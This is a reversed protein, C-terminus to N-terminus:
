SPTFRLPVTNMAGVRILMSNVSPSSLFMDMEKLKQLALSCEESCAVLGPLLSVTDTHETSTADADASDGYIPKAGSYIWHLIQMTVNYQPQMMGDDIKVACGIGREVIGSIFVGAAGRKGIVQGSFKEMLVTDFGGEAYVM